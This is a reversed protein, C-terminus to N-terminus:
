GAVPENPPTGRSVRHMNAEFWRGEPGCKSMDARVDEAPLRKSEGTVPSANRKNNCMLEGESTEKVMHMCEICLVPM